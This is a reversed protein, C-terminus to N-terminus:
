SVFWWTFSARPWRFTPLTRAGSGISGSSRLGASSPRAVVRREPQAALPRLAAHISGAVVGLDPNCHSWLWAQAYRDRPPGRGARRNRRAAARCAFALLSRGRRASPSLPLKRCLRAGCCGVRGPVAPVGHAGRGLIQRFQWADFRVNAADTGNVPAEVIVAPTRPSELLSRVTRLSKAPPFLIRVMPGASPARRRRPIPQRERWSKRRCSISCLCSSGRQFGQDRWATGITRIRSRELPPDM